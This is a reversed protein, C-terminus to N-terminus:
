YGGIAQDFIPRPKKEVGGTVDETWRPAPIDDEGLVPREAATEQQAQMVWTPVELVPKEEDIPADVTDCKDLISTMADPIEDPDPPAAKRAAAPADGVSGLTALTAAAEAQQRRIVRIVRKAEEPDYLAAHEVRLVLDDGWVLALSGDPLTAGGRFADGRELIANIIRVTAPIMGVHGSPLVPTRTMTPYNV